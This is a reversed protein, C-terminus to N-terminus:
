FAYKLESFKFTVAAKLRVAAICCVCIYRRRM